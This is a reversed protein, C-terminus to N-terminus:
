SETESFDMLIHGEVEREECMPWQEKRVYRRRWTLKCPGIGVRWRAMGRKVERIVVSWTRREGM